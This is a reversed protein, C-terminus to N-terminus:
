KKQIHKLNKKRKKKYYQGAWSDGQILISLGQDNGIKRFILNYFLGYM